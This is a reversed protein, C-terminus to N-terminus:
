KIILFKSEHSSGERKTVESSSKLSTLNQFDRKFKSYKTPTNFIILIDTIININNLKM